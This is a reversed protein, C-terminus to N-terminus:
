FNYQFALVNNNSSTTHELECYCANAVTIAYVDIVIYLKNYRLYKPIVIGTM